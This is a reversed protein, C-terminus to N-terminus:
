ASTGPTLQATLDLRWDNCRLVNGPPYEYDCTGVLEFGTKRCVANSAANDVAPFAHLYRHRREARASAVTAQAAATAIGKGQYPPLVNWGTEYVTGNRWGREWYGINGVVEGKPLLVIRFMRGTGTGDIELYRRHRALILEDNEPGALYKTMEPTNAQYLLELDADTWTDLRVRM